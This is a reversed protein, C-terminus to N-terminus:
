EKPQYNDLNKILTSPFEVVINRYMRAYMRIQANTFKFEGINHAPEWYDPHSTRRDQYRYQWWKASTKTARYTSYDTNFQFTTGIPAERVETVSPFPNPMNYGM